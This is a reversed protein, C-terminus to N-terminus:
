LKPFFLNKITEADTINLKQCVKEIEDRKWERRGKIKQMLNGYSIDTANALSAISRFGAKIAMVYLESYVM